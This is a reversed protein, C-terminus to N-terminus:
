KMSVKSIIVVVWYHGNTSVNTWLIFVPPNEEILISFVIEDLDNGTMSHSWNIDQYLMVVSM